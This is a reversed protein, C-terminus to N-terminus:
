RPPGDEEALCEVEDAFSRLYEEIESWHAKRLHESVTQQSVPDPTWAAAVQEQGAYDGATPLLSLSLSVAKAQAPTWGEVFAGAASAITNFLLQRTSLTWDEPLLCAMSRRGLGDLAYGSRRFAPGDSESVNEPRLFDVTDIVLAIRSDVGTHSRLYARFEVAARLAMQPREVYMQWSDGRFVDFAMEGYSPDARLTEFADYLSAVLAARADDGLRTSGVVDGTLVAHLLTTEM